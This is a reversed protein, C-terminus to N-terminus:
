FQILNSFIFVFDIKTVHISVAAILTRDINVLGFASFKLQRSRAQEAFKMMQLGFFIIQLIQREFNRLVMFADEFNITKELAFGISESM